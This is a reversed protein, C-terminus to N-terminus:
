ALERLLVAVDYGPLRASAEEAILERVEEEHVLPAAVMAEAAAADAGDTVADAALAEAATMREAVARLSQDGAHEDEVADALLAEVLLIWEPAAETRSIARAWRAALRLTTGM